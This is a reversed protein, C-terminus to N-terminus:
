KEYIRLTISYYLKFIIGLSLVISKLTADASELPEQVSVPEAFPLCPM